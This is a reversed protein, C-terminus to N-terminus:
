VELDRIYFIFDTSPVKPIIPSLLQAIQGRHYASHLLLHHLIEALTNRQYEGNKIQYHVPRNHAFNNMIEALEDRNRELLTLFQQKQVPLWPDIGTQNGQIRFIWYQQAQLIHASLELLRNGPEELALVQELLRRTAWLDYDFLEKLHQM